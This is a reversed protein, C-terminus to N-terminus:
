PQAGLDLEYIRDAMGRLLPYMAAFLALEDDSPTIGASAFLNGVLAAPDADPV